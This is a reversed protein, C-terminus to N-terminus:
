AEPRRLISFIFEASAPFLEYKEIYAKVLEPTGWDHIKVKCSYKNEYSKQVEEISLKKEM